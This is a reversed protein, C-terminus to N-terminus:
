RSSGMVYSTQRLTNKLFAAIIDDSTNNISMLAGEYNASYRLIRLLVVRAPLATRHNIASLQEVNAKEADGRTGIDDNGAVCVHVAIGGRVRPRM